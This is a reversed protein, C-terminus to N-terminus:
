LIVLKQKDTESIDKKNIKLKSTKEIDSGFEKGFVDIMDETYSHPIVISPEIQGILKTTIEAKDGVIPLILVDVAAFVEVQKDTLVQKIDGLYALQIGEILVTFGVEEELQVADIMCKKVEYEGASDFVKAETNKLEDTNKDSFLLVEAKADSSNIALTLARSTIIFANKDTKTIEM